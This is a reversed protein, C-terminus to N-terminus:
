KLIVVTVGAGGFDEHEDAYGEVQTYRSLAERALKRLVGDGKGHLIRVESASLLIADDLFKDLIGLAEEARKGRIDLSPNFASRKQVLDITRKGPAAMPQKEGNSSGVKELRLIDIRSLMGNFEVEAIKGKNTLKKILGTVSQGQIRVRDGVAILRGGEMIAERKKEPLATEVKKRALDLKQRVKKTEEKHAKAEKIHRITKEIEKNAGALLREAEEKAKRLIESKAGEIKESLLKYKEKEHLLERELIKVHKERKDFREKQRELKATLQDFSTAGAGALKAAEEIITHPLGIKRAIEIAFSSGPRGTELAYLPMLKEMDFRMSANVIGEQRDAFEKLNLYHTTIVGRVGRELLAKLIVEAIAGGINPETGTGFEDILILTRDNAGKLMKKMHLLHSSYTSLDNEISQDDGIDIMIEGFVGVESSEDVPVALGCQVMWQVLGVTKLSVSKGGANPGSVMIVRQDHRIDLSLPVTKKGERINAMRLLPHYAERLALVPKDALSPYLYGNSIAFKAKARIFDVQQIFVPLDKLQEYQGHLSTTLAELIRLIERNERLTCAVMDNSAEMVEAPEMFIINGSASQGQIYGPIRRKHEA